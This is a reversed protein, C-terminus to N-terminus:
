ILSECRGCASKVSPRNDARLDLFDAPAVRGQGVDDGVRNERILMIRGLDPFPYPRLLLTNVVSFVATNAGIGLALSLLAVGTFVPSRLLMRFAYRLDRLLTELNHGM